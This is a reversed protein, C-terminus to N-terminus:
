IKEFEVNEGTDDTDHDNNLDRKLHLSLGDADFEGKVTIEFYPFNDNWYQTGEGFWEVDETCTDSIDRACTGLEKLKFVMYYRSFALQGRTGFIGSILGSNERRIIYIEEYKNRTLTLTRTTNYVLDNTNIQDKFQWTGIYLPDEKLTDCCPFVLIIIFLSFLILRSCISTM